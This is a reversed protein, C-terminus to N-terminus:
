DVEVLQSKNDDAMKQSAEDEDEGSEIEVIEKVDPYKQGNQVLSHDNHNHRSRRRDTM